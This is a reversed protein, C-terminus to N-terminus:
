PKYAPPPDRFRRYSSSPEPEPEVEEQINRSIIRSGYNPTPEILAPERSSGQEGQYKYKCCRCCVFPIIVLLLFGMVCAVVIGAIVGPPLKGCSSWRHASEDSQDGCNNHGDCILGRWICRSNGCQFMKTDCHYNLHAYSTVIFTIQSHYQPGSNNVTLFQLELAKGESYYSQFETLDDSYGCIKSSKENELIQVYSQCNPFHYPRFDLHRVSLVIGYGLPPQLIITCNRGGLFSHHRSSKLIGSSNSSESGLNWIGINTNSCLDEVYAIEYHGSSFHFLMSIFSILLTSSKM